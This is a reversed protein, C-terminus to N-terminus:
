RYFTFYEGRPPPLQTIKRNYYFEFEFKNLEALIQITTIYFQSQIFDSLSIRGIRAKTKSKVNLYTTSLEISTEKQINISIKGLLIM